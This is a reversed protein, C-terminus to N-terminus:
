REKYRKVTHIDTKRDRQKDQTDIYIDENKDTHRDKQRKHETERNMKNIQM